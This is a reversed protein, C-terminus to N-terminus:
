PHGQAVARALELPIGPFAFLLITLTATTTTAVVMPWPAEAYKAARGAAPTRFFAAYVIPLFYAANLLTSLILVGVVALKDTELAGLLVYWKSVFGAAPPVGIMSLTGITFAVMTWPM